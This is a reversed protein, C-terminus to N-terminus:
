DVSYPCLARSIQEPTQCGAREADEIEGILLAWRAEMTPGFIGGRGMEYGESPEFVSSAADHLDGSSFRGRLWQVYRVMAVSRDCRGPGCCDERSLSSQELVALAVAM